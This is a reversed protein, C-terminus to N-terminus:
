LWELAVPTDGRGEWRCPGPVLTPPWLQLDGCAPDALLSGEPGGRPRGPCTSCPPHLHGVRWWRDSGEAWLAGGQNLLWLGPCRPQLCILHNGRWPRCDSLSEWAAGGRPRTVSGSDLTPSTIMFVSFCTQQGPRAETGAHQAPRADQAVSVRQPGRQPAAGAPRSPCPGAPSPGRPGCLRLFARAGHAPPPVCSVAGFALWAPRRVPALPGGQPDPANSM